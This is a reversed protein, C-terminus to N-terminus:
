QTKQFLAVTQPEPEADLEDHLLKVLKQYLRIAAGRENQHTYILERAKSSRWADGDLPVAGRFIRLPGLAEVRLDAAPAVAERRAPEVSGNQAPSGQEERLAFAIAASM